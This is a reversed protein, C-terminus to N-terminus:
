CPLQGILETGLVTRVVLSNLMFLAPQEEGKADTQEM